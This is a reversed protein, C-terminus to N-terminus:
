APRFRLASWVDDLAVQRVPQVGQGAIAAALRDRNLDTGLKGAKPYAIWALRDQRAAELATWATGALDAQRRVFAIVADAGAPDDVLEAGALLGDPVPQDGALVAVRLGAKVQLKGLIDM